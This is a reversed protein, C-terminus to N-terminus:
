QFYNTLVFVTRKVELNFRDFVSKTKLMQTKKVRINVLNRM